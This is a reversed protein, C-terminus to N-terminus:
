ILLLCESFLLPLTITQTYLHCDFDRIVAFRIGFLSSQKMLWTFPCFITKVKALAFNDTHPSLMILRLTFFHTRSKILLFVYDGGGGIVKFLIQPNCLETLM